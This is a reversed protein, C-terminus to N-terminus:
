LAFGFDNTAASFAVPEDHNTEARHTPVSGENEEEAFLQLVVRVHFLHDVRLNGVALSELDMLNRALVTSPLGHRRIAIEDKGFYM